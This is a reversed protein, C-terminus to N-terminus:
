SQTPDAVFEFLNESKSFFNPTLINRVFCLESKFDQFLMVLLSVIDNISNQNNRVCLQLYNYINKM